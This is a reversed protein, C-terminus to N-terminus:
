TMNDRNHDHIPFVQRGIDLARRSRAVYWANMRSDWSRVMCFQTWSLMVVRALQLDESLLVVLLHEFLQREREAPDPYITGTKKARYLTKISYREGDRSLADVNKTGRPAAILVPLDPRAKFLDVALKEGIDGVTLLLGRRTAEREVEARLKLLVEDGLKSIEIKKLEDRPM